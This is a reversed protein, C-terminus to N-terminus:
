KTAIKNLTITINEDSGGQTWVLGRIMKMTNSLEDSSVDKIIEKGNVLVNYTNKM